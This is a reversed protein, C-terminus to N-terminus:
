REQGENVMTVNDIDADEGEGGPQGDKGFSIIRFPRGGGPPEYVYANKWPDLPVTNRSALYTNGNEDPTVLIDLSDPYKGNNELAYTTVASVLQTIDMKAKERQAVFFRGLLNPVVITAILGLIVIVVMLEALSFGARARYAPRRSHIQM